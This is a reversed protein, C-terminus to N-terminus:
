PLKEVTPDNPHLRKMHRAISLTASTDGAATLYAAARLGTAIDVKVGDNLLDAVKHAADARDDRAYYLRYHQLTVKLFDEEEAGPWLGRYGGTKFAAFARLILLDGNKLLREVNEDAIRSAESWNGAAGAYRIQLSLARLDALAEPPLSAMVKSGLDHYMTFWNMAETSTTDGDLAPPPWVARRLDFEARALKPRWEDAPALTEARRLIRDARNFDGHDLATMAPTILMQEAFIPDVVFLRKRLATAKQTEPTPMNEYVTALEALSAADAPNTRLAAEFADRAATLWRIEHPEFRWRQLYAAGFQHYTYHYRLERVEEAQTGAWTLAHEANAMGSIKAAEAAETQGAAVLSQWDRYDLYALNTFAQVIGEYASGNFPNIRTSQRFRERALAFSQRQLDIRSDPQVRATRLWSSASAYLTDSCFDRVVFTFLMASILLVLLATTAQALHRLVPWRNPLQDLAGRVIAVGDGPTAWLVLSTIAVMALPAIHFPFDVLAHVAVTGLPLLLAMRQARERGRPLQLLTRRGAALLLGVPILVLLLGTLGGEVLMQLYDNHALDTRKTTTGIRTDPHAFFYDGQAKPYVYQFSGFGHGLLPAQAILPTSAVLIRLRTEKLLQDPNLDRAVREALSVDYRALPNHHPAVTQAAFVVAAAIAAAAYTRLGLRKGLAHALAPIGVILGAGGIFWMARSQAAILIFLMLLLAVVCWVRVTRRVAGMAGYLCFFIPFMLYSSMGTNHGILSGIRNRPDDFRPLFASTLDIHQLLAVTSIVTGVLIIAAMFFRRTRWGPRLTLLIMGGLVAASFLAATRMGTYFAPTLTLAGLCAHLIAALLYISPKRLLARLRAVPTGPASRNSNSTRSVWAHALAMCFAAILFGMLLDEKLVLVSHEFSFFPRLQQLYFLSLPTPNAAWIDLRSLFADPLRLPYAVASILTAAFLLLLTMCRTLRSYRSPITPTPSNM